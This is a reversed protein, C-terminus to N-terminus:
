YSTVRNRGKNKSEYMASDCREILQEMSEGLQYEAVGASITITVTENKVRNQHESITERILEAITVAEQLDCGELLILFEEGGWRCLTDVDRINQKILRSASKLIQDGFQHGYQDNIAKFHDIDLAIMSLPWDKRIATKEAHEFIWDFVQRSAAGTLKDKTAMQELRRQYNRLTFNAVLLVCFSVVLSVGLNMWLAREIRAAAPNNIQEVILFWDFEPILRSNLYVTNGNQADYSVSASPNSLIHPLLVDLGAKNRLYVDKQFLSSRLTIDGQRDVFYIERGYRQQYNEILEAVSEMSLGVGIVGILVGQRNLVKYNAFISMRRSEATDRDININHDSHLKLTHFYWDDAPDNEDIQKLIGNPHYYYRSTESVFFATITNYKRQIQALYESLREPEQEGGEVWDILFTNNAMSSSILLPQLLDRQIESYINDSTLPLMQKQLQESTSSRAVFYGILSTAMFGCLVLVNIGLTFFRKRSRM